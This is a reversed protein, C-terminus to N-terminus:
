IIKKDIKRNDKWITEFNSLFIFNIPFTAIVYRNLVAAIEKSPDKKTYVFPLILRRSNIIGAIIENEIEKSIIKLFPFILILNKSRALFDICM